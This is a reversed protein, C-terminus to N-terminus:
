QRSHPSAISNSLWRSRSSRDRMSKLWNITEDKTSGQPRSEFAELTNVLTHGSAFVAIKCDANRVEGAFDPFRAVFANLDSDRVKPTISKFRERLRASDTDGSEIIEDLMEVTRAAATRACLQYELVRTANYRPGVYALDDFVVTRIEISAISDPIYRGAILQGNHGSSMGFSYEKGAQILIPEDRPLQVTGNRTVPQEAVFSIIPRTGTNKVTVTFMPFGFGPQREIKVLEIADITAKFLPEPPEISNVRVAKVKVSPEGDATFDSIEKEENEKLLCSVRRLETGEFQPKDSWLSVAVAVLDGNMEARIHIRGRALVNPVDLFAPSTEGQWKIVLAMARPKSKRDQQPTTATSPRSSALFIFVVSAFVSSKHRM